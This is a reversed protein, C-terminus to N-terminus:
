TTSSSWIWCAGRRLWRGLGRHFEEKGGISKGRATPTERGGERGGQGEGNQRGAGEGGGGGRNEREGEGRREGKGEGEREGERRPPARM